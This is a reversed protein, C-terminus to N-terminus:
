LEQAKDTRAAAPQLLEGRGRQRSLQRAPEHFAGSQAGQPIVGLGKQHVPFRPGLSHAGQEEIEQAVGGYTIGAPCRGDDPLEAISWGVVRRSYLDVVALYACGELMRIYTIDTVWVRDPAEVDFQRDLTNDVVM